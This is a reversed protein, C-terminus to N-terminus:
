KAIVMKKTARFAGAQIHYFYVGSAVQEGAQNKGDWYAARDRGIYSGAEQNGLDLQRVLQGNINYIRIAVTEDTALQYPIWTEPNFPNPYNQLLKPNRPVLIKAFDLGEVALRSQVINGRADSIRLIGAKLPNALDWSDSKVEFTVSALVGAESIGESAIRTCAASITKDTEPSYWYTDAGDSGFLSGEEVRVVELVDPDFPLEFQFAYLDQIGDAVLDIRVTNSSTESKSATKLCVNTNANRSPAAAVGGEETPPIPMGGVLGQATLVIDVLDVVGDGNIDTIAGEEELSAFRRGFATIVAILDRMDNKGDDNLDTAEKSAERAAERARQAAEKAREAAEQAKEALDSAEDSAQEAKEAAIQAQEAAREAKEAAKRATSAAKRALRQAEKVQKKTAESASEDAELADTEAMLAANEAAEAAAEAAEEAAEQAIEDAEEAAEQAAEAAEQAALEDQPDGTKKAKEAAKEAARAANGAAKRANAAVIEAAEAAQKAANEAATLANEAARRANVGGREMSKKAAEAAKRTNEAVRKAAKAVNNAAILAAFTAEEAAAEAEAAAEEAEETDEKGAREAAREARELAKEAQKAVREAAKIAKKVANAAEEGTAEAAEQAAEVAEEAAEEVDEAIEEPTEAAELEPEEGEPSTGGRPLGEPRYVLEVKVRPSTIMGDGTIQASMRLNMKLITGNGGLQLSFSNGTLKANFRSKLTEELQLGNVTLLVEVDAHANIQTKNRNEVIKEGLDGLLLTASYEVGAFSALPLFIEDPFNTLDFSQIIADFPIDDIAVLMGEEYKIDVHAVPANVMGDDTVDGIVTIALEHFFNGEGEIELRFNDRRSTLEFTCEVGLEVIETGGASLYLNAILVGDEIDLDAIEVRLTYNIGNFGQELELDQLLQFVVEADDLRFSPISGRFRVSDEDLKVNIHADPKNGTDEPKGSGEDEVDDEDEDPKGGKDDKKDPKETKGHGKGKGAPEDGPEGDDGDDAAAEPEQSTVTITATEEDYAGAPDEVRFTVEYDGEQVDGMPQWAFVSEYLQAGMSMPGGTASYTLTDGADPDTASLVIQLEQGIMVESDPVPDLVPPHNSPLVVDVDEISSKKTWRASYEIAYSVLTGAPIPEEVRITITDQDKPSATLHDSLLRIELDDIRNSIRYKKSGPTNNEYEWNCNFGKEQTLAGLYASLLVNNAEITLKLEEAITHTGVQPLEIDDEFDVSSSGPLGNVTLIQVDTSGTITVTAGLAFKIDLDMEMAPISMPSSFEGGISGELLTSQEDSATEGTAVPGAATHLAIVWVVTIMLGLLKKRKREEMM